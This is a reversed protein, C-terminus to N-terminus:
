KKKANTTEKKAEEAKILELLRPQIAELIAQQVLPSHLNLNGDEDMAYDQILSLDPNLLKKLLSKMPVPNTKKKIGKFANILDQSNVPTAAQALNGNTYTGALQSALTSKGAQRAPNYLSDFDTDMMYRMPNRLVQCYYERDRELRQLRDVLHTHKNRALSDSPPYNCEVYDLERRVAEIDKEIREIDRTVSDHGTTAAM